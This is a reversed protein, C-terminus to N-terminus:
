QGEKIRVEKIAGVQNSLVRIVGATPVLMGHVPAKRTTEFFSFFAIIFLAFTVFLCTLIGHSISHTLIVTGYYRVTIHEIAQERFLMNSPIPASENFTANRSNEDSTTVDDRM